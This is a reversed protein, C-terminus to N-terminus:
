SETPARLRQGPLVLHPDPGILERNAAYWRPWEAAIEGADAGPGLVRAAIAWLSEGRRVIVEQVPDGSRRPPTSVLRIGGAPATPRDPVWGSLDQTAPRDVSWPGDPSATRGPAGPSAGPASVTASSPAAAAASTAGGLLAFAVVGAALHRALRPVWARPPAAEARGARRAADWVAVASAAGLWTLLCWAWVAAGAGVAADLNAPGMEARAQDNLGRALLALMASVTLYTAAWAIGTAWLRGRRLRSSDALAEELPAM